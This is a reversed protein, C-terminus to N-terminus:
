RAGEKGKGEGKRALAAVDNFDKLFGRRSEEPLLEVLGLIREIKADVGEGEEGEEVIDPMAVNGEKEEGKAGASEGGAAMSEGDRGDLDKLDQIDDDELEDVDDVDDVEAVEDPGDDVSDGGAEEEEEEEGVVRVSGKSGKILRLFQLYGSNNGVAVKWRTPKAPEEYTTRQPQMAPWFECTEVVARINDIMAAEDIPFDSKYCNYLWSEVM